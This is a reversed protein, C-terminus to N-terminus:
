YPIKNIKGGYSAIVFKSDPTFTMVPLTGLTNQSEIDDRQIPYALWNEEGNVLNRAM